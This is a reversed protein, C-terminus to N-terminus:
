CGGLPALPGQLISRERHLQLRGTPHIQIWRGAAIDGGSDVDGRSDCLQLDTLSDPLTPTGVAGSGSFSIYGPADPPNASLGAHLEPPLAAHSQIVVDDASIAGDANRDVFVAWGSALSGGPLCAGNGEVAPCLTVTVQRKIAESRAAHLSTVIDNTAASMRNNAFLATFAPVGMGLAIAAVALAFM